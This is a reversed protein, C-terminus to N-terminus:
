TDPLKDMYLLVGLAWTFFSAWSFITSRRERMAPKCAM